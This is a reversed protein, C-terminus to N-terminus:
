GSASPRCTASTSSPPHLCTAARARASWRSTAGWGGVMPSCGATRATPDRAASARVSLMLCLRKVVSLHPLLIGWPNEETYHVNFRAYPRQSATRIEELVPDFQKLAALVRTVIEGPPLNTLADAFKKEPTWQQTQKFKTLWEYQALWKTLDTKERQNGIIQVPRVVDDFKMLREFGNTDRRRQTGPEYDFMPALFPTMAFNQGDPVASPVYAALDFRVGNAEQQRRYNEWARKGRWNEEAYYLGTLTALFAFGLLCRRLMRWSFLWRFVAGALRFGTRFVNKIPTDIDWSKRGNNKPTQNM